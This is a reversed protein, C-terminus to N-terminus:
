AATTIATAETASTGLLATGVTTDVGKNILYDAAKKTDAANYGAVLMAVKTSDNPNALVKILFQGAGVTTLTTFEAECAAKGLLQAAVSNICSGGVVVLNKTKVADVDSDKVIINGLETATGGSVSGGVVTAGEYAFLLDVFVQEDPYYIEARDNDLTNFKIYTGYRDVGSQQYSDSSWSIMGSDTGTIAPSGVSIEVPTTSGSQDAAICIADGNDANNTETTKKEEVFLIGGGYTVNFNCSTGDVNIGTILGATTLTYNVNGFKWSTTTSINNYLSGGEYTSLTEVGPLSYTTANALQVPKVISMWAGNKLKIRPFVSTVSGVGGYTSSTGWTVAVTSDASLNTVKFYYPQGNINTTANGSTGVTLGSSFINEGTLADLFQIQSSSDLAGTPV